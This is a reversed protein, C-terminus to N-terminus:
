KKKSLHYKDFLLKYEKESLDKKNKLKTIIPLTIINSKIFLYKKNNIHNIVIYLEKYVSTNCFELSEM